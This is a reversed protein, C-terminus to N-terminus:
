RWIIRDDQQSTILEKIFKHKSNTDIWKHVVTWEMEIISGRKEISEGIECTEIWIKSAIILNNDNNNNNNKYQARQWESTSQRGVHDFLYIDIPWRAALSRVIRWYRGISPQRDNIQLVHTRCHRRKELKRKTDIAFTNSWHGVNACTITSQRSTTSQLCRNCVVPQTGHTNTLKEGTGVSRDNGRTTTKEDFTLQVCVCPDILHAVAMNNHINVFNNNEM